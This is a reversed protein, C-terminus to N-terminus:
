LRPPASPPSARSKQERATTHKRPGLTGNGRRRRLFPGRWHQAVIDNRTSPCSVEPWPLFEDGGALLVERTVRAGDPKGHSRQGLFHFAVHIIPVEVHRQVHCEQAFRSVVLVRLGRPVLLKDGLGLIVPLPNPHEVRIPFRSGRKAAIGEMRPRKKTSALRLFLGRFLQTGPPCLVRCQEPLSQVSGLRRQGQKAARAARDPTRRYVRLPGDPMRAPPRVSRPGCFERRRPFGLHPGMWTSLDKLRRPYPM